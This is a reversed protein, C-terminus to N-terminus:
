VSTSAKLRTFLRVVATVIIGVILSSALLNAFVLINAGDKNIQLGFFLLMVFFSIM